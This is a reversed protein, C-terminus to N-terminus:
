QTGPPGLVGGILAELFTSISKLAAQMGKGLDRARAISSPHTVSLLFRSGWLAGAYGQIGPRLEGPGRHR